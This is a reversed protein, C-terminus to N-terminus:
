QGGKLNAAREKAARIRDEPTDGSAPGFFQQSQQPFLGADIISDATKMKVPMALAGYREDYEFETKINGAEMEQELQDVIAADEVAARNKAEIDEVTGKKERAKIQDAQSLTVKRGTVDRGWKKIRIFGPDGEQIDAGTDIWVEVGNEDKEDKIRDAPIVYSRDAERMEYLEKTKAARMKEPMTMPEGAERRALEALLKDKADGDAMTLMVEQRIASASVRYPDDAPKYNSVRVQLERTKKADEIFVGNMREVLAAVEQETAEAGWLSQKIKEETNIAGSDIGDLTIKLARERGENHLQHSQVLLERRQKASLETDEGSELRRIVALPDEIAENQIERYVVGSITKTELESRRYEKEQPSDFPISEFRERAGKYDGYNILTDVEMLGNERAETEIKDIAQFKIREGYDAAIWGRNVGSDVLTTVLDPQGSEQARVVEAMLSERARGIEQKAAQVGVQIAHREGFTVVRHTISRQAAPSLQRGALYENKFRDIRQRFEPEWTVPDPNRAKWKEFEGVAKDMETQAASLETFDRAEALREWIDFAAQGIDKVGQGVGALGRATAQGLDDPANPMPQANDSVSRSLQALGRMATDADVRDRQVNEMEPALPQAPGEARYQPVIPM